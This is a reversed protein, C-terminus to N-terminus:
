RALLGHPNTPLRDTQEDPFVRSATDYQLRREPCRQLVEPDTQPQCLFQTKPKSNPVSVANPTGSQGNIRLM